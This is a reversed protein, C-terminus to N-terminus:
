PAAPTNATVSAAVSDSETNLSTAFGDIQAQLTALDTASSALAKLQSAISACLAVISDDVTKVRDVAASIKTLDLAMKTLREHINVQSHLAVNLQAHIEDLRFILSRWEAQNIWM